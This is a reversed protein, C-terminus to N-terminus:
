RHFFAGSGRIPRYDGCRLPPRSRPDTAIWRVRRRYPRPQAFEQGMIRLHGVQRRQSSGRQPLEQDIEAAYPAIEQEAFHRVSDRLMDLEESLAFHLSTYSM